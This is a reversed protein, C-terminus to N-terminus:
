GNSEGGRAELNPFLRPLADIKEWGAGLSVPEVKLDDFYDDLVAAREQALPPRCYDEEEWVVVGDPRRRANQLSTSLARGFPQMALFEDRRLRAELDVLRDERLSAAVLYHAM